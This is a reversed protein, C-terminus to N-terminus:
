TRRDGPKVSWEGHLLTWSGDANFEAVVTPGLISRNLRVFYQGLSEGRREHLAQKVALVRITNEPLQTLYGVAERLHTIKASPTNGQATWTYAKCECM